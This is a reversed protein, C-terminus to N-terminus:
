KYPKENEKASFPIMEWSYWMATQVKLPRNKQMNVLLKAANSFAEQNKRM